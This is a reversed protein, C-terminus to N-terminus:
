EGVLTKYFSPTRWAGPTLYKAVVDLDIEGSEVLEGFAEEDFVDEDYSKVAKHHVTVYVKAVIEDSLEDKLGLVDLDPNARNGGRREFDYHPGPGDASVKGPIQSTPRGPVRTVTKDLHAFVLNRYRTELAAIEAQLKELQYFEYSLKNIQNQSLPVDELTITGDFAAALARARGQIESLTELPDVQFVRKAEEVRAKKTSTGSRTEAIQKRADLREQIDSLSVRTSKGKRVPVMATM